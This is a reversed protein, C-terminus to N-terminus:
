KILRLAVPYVYHEGKSAKVAALICFILNAVAIIPFALVGILSLDRDFGISRPRCLSLARNPPAFLPCSFSPRLILTIRVMCADGLHLQLIELRSPAVRVM